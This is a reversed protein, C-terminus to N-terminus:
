AVIEERWTRLVTIGVAIAFYLALFLLGEHLPVRGLLLSLDLSPVEAGAVGATGAARVQDGVAFPLYQFWRPEAPEGTVLRGMLEAMAGVLGLAAVITEGVYLVIVTAVGLVPRCLVVAVFFGIAGRELLVPFGFLLHRGLLELSSGSFADGVSVGHLLALALGTVVGVLLVLLAGIALVIGIAVAKAGLYALRSEGRAIVNRLVGWNWDAGAIAAAYAAALMSGLLGFPFDAATTWLTPFRFLTAVVQRDSGVLVMLLITLVILAALVVYTATRRRMKLLEAAILRV